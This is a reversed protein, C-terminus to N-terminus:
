RGAYLWGRIPYQQGTEVGERFSRGNPLCRTSNPAEYEALWDAIRREGLPNALPQIPLLRGALDDDAPYLGGYDRKEGHDVRDRGLGKRGARQRLRDRPRERDIRPEGRCSDEKGIASLQPVPEHGKRDHDVDRDQHDHDPAKVQM